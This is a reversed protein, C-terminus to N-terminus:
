YRPRSRQLSSYQGKLIRGLLYSMMSPPLMYNGDNVLLLMGKADQADFHKKTERIQKNAKSITSAQLKRKIPELFERACRPPLDRLNVSIKSGQPSPVLGQKVWSAHLKSIRATFEQNTSLDETLCKLEAVVREVPFWYDANSFLPKVLVDDLVLGNLAKVCTAMEDVVSIRSNM